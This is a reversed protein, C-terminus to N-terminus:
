DTLHAAEAQLKQFERQLSPLSAGCAQLDGAAAKKEIEQLIRATSTAGVNACAGKSYHALRATEKADATAVARELAYLQRSTDSILSVLIERMLDDDEMTINRLQEVDLVPVSV